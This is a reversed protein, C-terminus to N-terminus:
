TAKREISLAEDLRESVVNDSEKYACNVYNKGKLWLTALGLTEM